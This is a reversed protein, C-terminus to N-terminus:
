CLNVVLDPFESTGSNKGQFQTIKPLNATTLIKTKSWFDFKTKKYCNVENSPWCFWILIAYCLNVVLDPFESTGSFKGQFRTVKPLNATTLIRTKSWFDFKTKKYCNAPCSIQYLRHLLMQGSVFDPNLHYLLLHGNKFKLDLKQHKFWNLLVCMTIEYHNGYCILDM